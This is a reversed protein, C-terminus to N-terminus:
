STSSSQGECINNITASTSGLLDTLNSQFRPISTTSLFTDKINQLTVLIGMMTPRGQPSENTCLLGVNILASLCNLDKDEEICRSTTTLLGMDVVEQVQNPFSSGVWKHLTMGEVFMDHTPKKRTLMELLMIGYSYVDGKTTVQGGVGYEPPIYGTSGKLANTSTLAGDENNAFCITAIGFDILYATMDEGLLVNNPKLDCHIVQVFCHHHLYTMGQAIDIAINLRQILNLCSQEGDDSYLWKELSGKPMLPFILAKIQLDSYCTIVWILNRHRVRGLVKCDRDFSKQAGENQLNLLKVAVMTGDNLIGKYVKGFSGIGLLNADSFENKAIILEAYSIRRHGVNLSPGTERQINRRCNKRWLIALFLCLVGIAVVVVPIIVRKLNLVSKHKHAYCPPLNVWPGCLGLNGMFATAGIKKFVGEKPVEGSLKNFSFNLHHLMTLNALSIPIGGSLNNSSLDLDELSLLESISVPIPGELANYSLNLYAVEKCSGVISPIYGTIQNASIDIAQLKNFKGLELPVHGSLLNNSLNFYFALNALGALEKPIHGSLKNYSLDLLLLNVCKGLSAPINGSLQNCNLDLYRLQQLNAMSDPIKGSLSNGFIYLLGLGKLQGIEMPINGQLNNSDMCLRELKKLMSISSPISGTFFNSELSLFTLSSLNGIAPPIEGALENFGLGLYYLKTSLHGISFSLQGNFNNETLDLLRLDSCNSLATLIPCRTTNGSILYNGGLVLRQLHTLKGLETSVIGSLQNMGLDIIQLKTCNFLSSPVSGSLQNASLYLEKLQTTKKTCLESLIHGVLQNFAISWKQLNTCNSLSSLIRGTLHNGFLGLLRLQSLMGLESPVSGHLNNTSLDLYRLSSINGLCNPITGMLNNEWFNISVLNPLVCLQPPINGTLNNYSLTLNRLSCCSGLTPPISGQLQNQSLRLMKLRSLTGLQYPIKGHFSNNRLSLVRLFSLNALLPSITGQLGMHSVNLSVVRQRHRSCIIGTWECFSVNPKWTAALSQFPDYTIASKFALLAHQDSANTLHPPHHPFHAIPTSFVFPPNLFLIFSLTALLLMRTIQM